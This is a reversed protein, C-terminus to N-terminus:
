DRITGWGHTLSGSKVWGTVQPTDTCAYFEIKTWKDQQELIKVSTDTPVKCLAKSKTTPEEYMYVTAKIIDAEESSHSVGEEYTVYALKVYGEKGDHRVKVWPDGQILVEVKEGAKLKKIVTDNNGNGTRLPAGDYVVWASPNELEEGDYFKKQLENYKQFSLKTKLAKKLAPDSKESTSVNVTTGPCANYYLWKADEVYLRVCGHSVNNGLNNFAGSKMTNVDRKGFMVSHFYVGGVIQTWYRAYESNFSAFKGFRERGGIKWIGKPTPTGQDEPDDPNIETRGTTCLFRRVIKTYEGAEDREYVTVIQNRLDLLIYYRDPDTNKLEDMAFAKTPALFSLMLMLVLFVAAICAATRSKM